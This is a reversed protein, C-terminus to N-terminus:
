VRRQANGSASASAPDDTPHCRPVPSQPYYLWPLPRIMIVLDVSAV